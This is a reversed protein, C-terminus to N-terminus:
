RGAEIKLEAIAVRFAREDAFLRSMGNNTADNWLQEIFREDKLRSARGVIHIRRIMSLPIDDQARYEFEFAGATEAHYPVTETHTAVARGDIEFVVGVDYQSNFRSFETAFNRGMTKDSTVCVVAGLDDDDVPFDARIEGTAVIAAAAIPNTGHYLVKPATEPTLPEGAGVEPEVPPTLAEVIDIFNRM